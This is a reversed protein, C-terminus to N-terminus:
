RLQVLRQLRSRDNRYHGAEAPSEPTSRFGHSSSDRFASAGGGREEAARSLDSWLRVSGSDRLGIITDPQCPCDCAALGASTSAAVVITFAVLASLWRRTTM